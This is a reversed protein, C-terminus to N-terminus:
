EYFLSYKIVTGNAAAANIIKFNKINNFGAVVYSQGSTITHGDSTGATLTPSTGDLTFAASAVECTILAAVPASYTRIPMPAQVTVVTGSAKSGTWTEGAATPTGKPIQMFLIGYQTTAGITGGEVAVGVVVATATSTGGTITEGQVLQATTGATFKVYHTATQPITLLLPDFQTITTINTINGWRGSFGCEGNLPYVIM